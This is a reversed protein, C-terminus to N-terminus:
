RDYRDLTSFNCKLFVSCLVANYKKGVGRLVTSGRWVVVRNNHGSKKHGSCFGM